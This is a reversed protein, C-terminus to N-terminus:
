QEPTLDTQVNKAYIWLLLIRDEKVAWYYIARVSGRKGRGQVGWRIKRMGGSGPILEGVDPRFILVTQLRRYDDEDLLSLVQRTLISTEIIIM